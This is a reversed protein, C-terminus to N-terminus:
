DDNEDSNAEILGLVAVKGGDVAEDVALVEETSQAASRFVCVQEELGLPILDAEKVRM